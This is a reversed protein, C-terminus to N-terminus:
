KDEKASAAADGVAVQPSAPPPASVAPVSVLKESTEVAETTTSPADDTPCSVTMVAVAAANATSHPAVDAASAAAPAAGDGKIAAAPAPAACAGLFFNSQVIFRVAQLAISSERHLQPALLKRLLTPKSSM